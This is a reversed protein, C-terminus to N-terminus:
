RIVIKEGNLGHCSNCAGRTVPPDMILTKTGFTVRPYLGTGFDVPSVTYFSGKKDSTLSIVPAGSGKEDSYLKIVAKALGENNEAYITGAVKFSPIKLNEPKHCDMCDFGPKHSSVPKSSEINDKGSKLSSACHIGTFIFIAALLIIFLNKMFFLNSYQIFNNIKEM